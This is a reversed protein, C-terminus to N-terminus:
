GAKWVQHVRKGGEIIVYAASEVDVEFLHYEAEAFAEGLRETM